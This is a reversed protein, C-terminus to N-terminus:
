DVEVSAATCMEMDQDCARTNVMLAGTGHIHMNDLVRWALHQVVVLDGAAM